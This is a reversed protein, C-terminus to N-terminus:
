KESIDFKLINKITLTKLKSVYGYHVESKIRNQSQKGRKKKKDKKDISFNIKNSNLENTYKQINM